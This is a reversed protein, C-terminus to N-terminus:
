GSQTANVAATAPVPTANRIATAPMTAPLTTLGQVLADAGGLTIKYDFSQTNKPMVSLQWAGPKGKASYTVVYQLNTEQYTGTQPTVAVTPDTGLNVSGKIIKQVPSIIVNGDPGTLSTEFGPIRVPMDNPMGAPLPTTMYSIGSSLEISIPDASDVTFKKVYPEPPQKWVIFNLMVRGEGEMIIPDDVGLDIYGNYYGGSAAPVNVVVNLTGTAGPQLSSPASLSFASETLSPDQIGSSGYMPYSDSGLKPNLRIANSGTNKLDVHYQYQKGSELQDAIYPTGIQIVPPSVVNVGLNMQHIYNPYATPYPSPVQEDTFVIMTSYSGRLTDAPISAKVTFKASGGAPVDATKPTIAIWSSDAIFPGGYSFSRVVPTLTITKTDRNRVTVTMERSEGPKLSLQSYAPLIDLKTFNELIDTSPTSLPLPMGSVATAQSSQVDNVTVPQVTAAGAGATLFFVLVAAILITAPYHKMNSVGSVMTSRYGEALRGTYGGALPDRSTLHPVENKKIILYINISIFDTYIDSFFDPSHEQM